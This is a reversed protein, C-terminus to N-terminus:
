VVSKRDLLDGTRLTLAGATSTLQGVAGDHTVATIAEAESQQLITFSANGEVPGITQQQALSLDAPGAPQLAAKKDNLTVLGLRQSLRGSLSKITLVSAYSGAALRQGAGDQLHWDLVNGGRLETDFLKQGAENYVELRLQVVSGPSVFRVRKETATATVLPGAPTPTSPNDIPARSEQALATSALVLIFLSRGILRTLTFMISRRRVRFCRQRLNTWKASKPFNGLM